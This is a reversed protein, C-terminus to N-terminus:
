DIVIADIQVPTRPVDSTHDLKLWVHDRCLAFDNLHIAQGIEKLRVPDRLATTLLVHKIVPLVSARLASWRVVLRANPIRGRIRRSTWPVKLADHQSSRGRCGNM